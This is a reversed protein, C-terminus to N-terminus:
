RSPSAGGSSLVVFLAEYGCRRNDVRVRRGRASGSLLSARHLDYLVNRPPIGLAPGLYSEAQTEVGLQTVSFAKSGFATFGVVVLADGRKRIVLDFSEDADGFRVRLNGRLLLDDEIRESPVLEGPCEAIPTPLGLWSRCAALLLLLALAGGLGRRRV